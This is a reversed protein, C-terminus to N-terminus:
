FGMGSWERDPEEQPVNTPTAPAVLGAKEALYHKAYDCYALSVQKFSDNIRMREEGEPNSNGKFIAKDAFQNPEAGRVLYDSQMEHSKLTDYMSVIFSRALLECLKAWYNKSKGDLHSAENLFRTPAPKTMRNIRYIEQDMM